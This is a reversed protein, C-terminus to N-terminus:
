RNPGHRWQQPTTNTWRKFARYFSQVDAYGLTFATDQISAREERLLRHAMAARVEDLLHQFTMGAEALRRQLTRTSVALRRAVREQECLGLPLERLLLSRVQQVFPTGEKPLAALLRAAHAEVYKLLEPDASPQTMSLAARDMWLANESAEFEVPVGFWAHYPAVPYFAPHRFTVRRLLSRAGPVQHAYRAATGLMVEIPLGAQEVEETHRLLIAIWPGGDDRLEYCIARDLLRGYRRVQELAQPITQCLAVLKGVIGARHFIWDVAALTLPEEPFSDRLFAWLALLGAASVYGDPDDLQAATFGSVALLTERPIGRAAGFEFYGIATSALVDQSM